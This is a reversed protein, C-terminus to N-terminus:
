IEYHLNKNVENNTKDAKGDKNFLIVPEFGSNLNTMLHHLQRQSGAVQGGRSLYLIRKM